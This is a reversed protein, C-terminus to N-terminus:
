AATGLGSRAIPVVSARGKPVALSKRRRKNVYMREDALAQAAGVGPAAIAAVGLSLRVEVPYGEVKQRREARHVRRAVGRASELTGGRLLVGFEDGGVRAVLDGARVSRRLLRAAAILVADGAQHGHHDNVSKLGDVDASIFAASTEPALAAVADDWARRNPIGTLADTESARALRHVSADLEEHAMAQALLADASLAIARGIRQCLSTFGRPREKAHGVALAGVLHGSSIPVTMRSAVAIGFLDPGDTAAQAIDQIAARTAVGLLSEAKPGPVPGVVGFGVGEILPEDSYDLRIAAVECSLARATVEAVHRATDRLTTPRYNMLMRVADVLEFEDALLKEAPVGCTGDVASAAARLLESDLQTIPAGSGFVVVHGYGVPVAAAFRAHYPGAVHIPESAEQRVTRGAQWARAVLSEEGATLRVQGAWGVGRGRGGLLTFGDEHEFVLVDEATGAAAAFTDDTPASM